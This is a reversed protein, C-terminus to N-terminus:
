LGQLREQLRDRGCTRRRRTYFKCDVDVRHAQKSRSVGRLDHDGFANSTSTRPWSDRTKSARTRTIPRDPSSSWFFHDREGLNLNVPAPRQIIRGGQEIRGSTEHMAFGLASCRITPCPLRTRPNGDENSKGGAEEHRPGRTRDRNPGNSHVQTACRKIFMRRAMTVTRTPRTRGAHFGSGTPDTLPLRPAPRTGFAPAHRRAITARNLTSSHSSRSM